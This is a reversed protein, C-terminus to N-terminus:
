IKRCTSMNCVVGNSFVKMSVALVPMSSPMDVVQKFAHLTLRFMFTAAATV